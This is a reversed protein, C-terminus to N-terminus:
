RAVVIGSGGVRKAVSLAKRVQRVLGAADTGHEPYEAVGVDVEFGLPNKALQELVREAVAYGGESGEEPLLACVEDDGFRVCLAEPPVSDGVTDSLSRLATRARELEGVAVTDSFDAIDFVVLAFREHTEIARPLLLRNFRERDPLGTLLDTAAAQGLAQQMEDRVISDFAQLGAETVWDSAQLLKVFFRAVEGGDLVSLDVNREVFRWVSRRLVVFDDIVGVADRGLEHQYGSIERVLARVEGGRTFTEVTDSSQLFETFIEVLRRMGEVLHEHAGNENHGGREDRWLKMIEPINARIEEAIIRGSDM